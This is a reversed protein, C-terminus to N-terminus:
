QGYDYIMPVDDVMGWNWEPSMDILSYKECLPGIIADWLENREEYEIQQAFTIDLREQCIWRQAISSCLIPVFHKRDEEDLRKWLRVEHKTEFSRVDIKVIFDKTRYCHRRFDSIRKAKIGNITVQEEYTRIDTIQVDPTNM